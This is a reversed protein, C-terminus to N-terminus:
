LSENAAEGFWLAESVAHSIFKGHPPLLDEVDVSADVIDVM